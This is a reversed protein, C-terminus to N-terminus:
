SRRSRAAVNVAASSSSGACTTQAAPSIAPMDHGHDHRGLGTPRTRGWWTFKRRQLLGSPHQFADGAGQGAAARRRTRPKQQLAEEAPRVAESGSAFHGSASAGSLEAVFSDPSLGSSVRTMGIAAPIKPGSRTQVIAPM